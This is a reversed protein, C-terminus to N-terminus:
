SKQDVLTIPLLHFEYCITDLSKRHSYIGFFNREVVLYQVYGVTANPFKQAHLNDGILM